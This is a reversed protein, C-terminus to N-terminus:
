NPWKLLLKNKVYFLLYALLARVNFQRLYYSILSLPIKKKIRVIEGETDYLVIGSGEINYKINLEIPKLYLGYSKIVKYPYKYPSLIYRANKINDNDGRFDVCLDKEDLGIWTYIEKNTNYTDYKTLKDFQPFSFRRNCSLLVVQGITSTGGHVGAESFCTTLSISPYIFYKDNSIMYAWFFKSWAKKYNKVYSQMDVNDLIQNEQINYWNRFEKWMRASWCEGWSAVAQIAFVDSCDRIYEIPISGDMENRYLSIGAVRDDSEYFDIASTAYNYFGESVFIDDELVIVGKFFQSLDGCFLIHEKLGLRTEQIIVYKKGFPWVFGEVYDYLEQCGSKDISIVLPVPSSYNANLLSSLLREMSNLRNYGVTVIAVSEKDKIINHNM